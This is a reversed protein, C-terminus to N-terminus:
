RSRNCRSPFVRCIPITNCLYVYSNLMYIYLYTDHVSIYIYLIYKRIFIFLNICAYIFLYIICVCVGKPLCFQYHFMGKLLDPFDVFITFCVEKLNLKADWSPVISRIGGLGKATKGASNQSDFLQAVSASIYWLPEQWIMSRGFAFVILLCRKKQGWFVISDFCSPM